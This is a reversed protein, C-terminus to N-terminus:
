LQRLPSLGCGATHLGTVLVNFCCISARATPADRQGIQCIIIIKQTGPCIFLQFTCYQIPFCINFIHVSKRTNLHAQINFLQRGNCLKFFYVNSGSVPSVPSMEAVCQLIFVCGAMSMQTDSNQNEVLHNIISFFKIILYQKQIQFRWSFICCCLM